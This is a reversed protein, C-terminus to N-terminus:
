QLVKTRGSTVFDLIMQNTLLEVPDRDDTFVIGTKPDPQLNTLMSDMTDLILYPTDPKKALCQYNSAIAIVNSPQKSAFITSNFTNPIDSIFVSPFVQKITMFLSDVLRRDDMIRTVNLVLVGQSNLHDYVVQYFERTTLHWPIYPPRYADISIVDYLEQSKSLGWRGDELFVNLRNDQMAFYEQGIEVVKPDIEFGDIELQPYVALAERASTGAALGIIGMRGIKSIDCASPTIFPAIVVQEWAGHFDKLAPYYISHIGQGENLRLFRYGDIEQVQIYNYASESELIIGQATKDMGQLGIITLIFLLVPMWLHKLATKLNVTKWLGILTVILLIASITVFTRYTGIVPILWLVPIFTGIFSGLTSIAYIRGSISGAKNKDDMALRIAFPSATGLLIVPVSFLVLVSAFSGFLPGLQMSDFAQSAFRLIPRAILPIIGILFAAWALVKFFNEFNPNKDALKGGLIYGITLYILILGIIAAWVLNSSGFYDGLLRSASIEVALSALGSFFVGMYLYRHMFKM